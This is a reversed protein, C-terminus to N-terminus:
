SVSLAIHGTPPVERAPLGLAVLVANLREQADPDIERDIAAALTTGHWDISGFGEDVVLLVTLGEDHVSTTLYGVRHSGEIRDELYGNVDDHDIDILESIEKTIDYGVGYYASVTM